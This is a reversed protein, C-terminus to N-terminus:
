PCNFNFTDVIPVVNESTKYAKVIEEYSLDYKTMFPNIVKKNDKKDYYLGALIYGFCDEPTRIEGNLTWLRNRM